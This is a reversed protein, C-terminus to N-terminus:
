CPCTLFEGPVDEYQLSVSWLDITVAVYTSLKGGITRYNQTHGALNLCGQVLFVETCQQCGTM